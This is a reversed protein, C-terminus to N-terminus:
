KCKLSTTCSKWRLRRFLICMNRSSFYDPIARGLQTRAKELIPGQCCGRSEKVSFRKTGIVEAKRQRRLGAQAEPPLLSLPDNSNPLHAWVWRARYLLNPLYFPSFFQAKTLAGVAPCSWLSIPHDFTQLFPLLKDEPKTWPSIRRKRSEKTSLPSLKWPHYSSCSDEKKKRKRKKEKVRPPCKGNYIEKENIKATWKNIMCTAVPTGTGDATKRLKSHTAAFLTTSNLPWKKM